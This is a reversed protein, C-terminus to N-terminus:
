CDGTRLRRSKREPIQPRLSFSKQLVETPVHLTKVRVGFIMRPATSSPSANMRKTLESLNVARARKAPTVRARYHSNPAFVGHFRTLHFHPPNSPVVM